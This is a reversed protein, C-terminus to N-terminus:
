PEKENHLQRHKQSCYYQNDTKVAEHKPIHLGCHQCRVVTEIHGQKNKKNIQSQNIRNRIMRLLLWILLATILIHILTM